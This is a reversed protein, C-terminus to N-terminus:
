EERRFDPCGFAHHRYTHQCPEDALRKKSDGHWRNWENNGFELADEFSGKFVVEEATEDRFPAGGIVKGISKAKLYFYRYVEFQGTQLNKRLSLRHSEMTAGAPIWAYYDVEQFAIGPRNRDPISFQKECIIM